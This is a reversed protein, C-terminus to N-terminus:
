LGMKGKLKKGKSNKSQACPLMALVCSIEQTGKGTRVKDGHRSSWMGQKMWRTGLWEDWKMRCINILWWLKKIVESSIFSVFCVFSISHIERIGIYYQPFYANILCWSKVSFTMNKVLSIFQYMFLPLVISVEFSTGKSRLNFVVYSASIHPFPLQFPCELCLSCFIGFM